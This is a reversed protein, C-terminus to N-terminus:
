PRLPLPGAVSRSRALDILALVTVAATVILAIGGAAPYDGYEDPQGVEAAIGAFLAVLGALQAGALAVVARRQRPGAAIALLALGAGLVTMWLPLAWAVITTAVGLGCIVLGVMRLRPRANQRTMSTAAAVILLAGLVLGLTYLAYPREWDDSDDHHTSRYGYGAVVL